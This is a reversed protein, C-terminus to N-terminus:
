YGAGRKRDMKVEGHKVDFNGWRAATKEKVRCM